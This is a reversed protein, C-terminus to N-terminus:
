EALVPYKEKQASSQEEQDQDIHTTSSSINDLTNSSRKDSSSGIFKSLRRRFFIQVKLCVM